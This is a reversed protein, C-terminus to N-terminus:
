HCADGGRNRVAPLDALHSADSGAVVDPVASLPCVHISGDMRLSQPAHSRAVNVNSM